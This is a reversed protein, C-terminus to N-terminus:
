LLFFANKEIKPSSVPIYLQNQRGQPLREPRDSDREDHGVATEALFTCLHCSMHDEIMVVSRHLINWRPNRFTWSICCGLSLPPAEFQPVSHYTNDDFEYKILGFFLSNIKPKYKALTLIDM